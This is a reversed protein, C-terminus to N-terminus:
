GPHQLYVELPRAFGLEEHPRIRNMVGRYYEVEAALVIGDSIEERYLHEYELTGFSRETM